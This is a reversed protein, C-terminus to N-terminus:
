PGVLMFFKLQLVMLAEPNIMQLTTHAKTWVISAEKIKQFHPYETSIVKWLGLAM